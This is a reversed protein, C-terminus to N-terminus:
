KPKATADHAAKAQRYTTNRAESIESEQRKLLELAHERDRLQRYTEEYKVRWDALKQKATEFAASTISADTAVYLRYMRDQEAWVRKLDAVQVEVDLTYIEDQMRALEKPDADPLAADALRGYAESRRKKAEIFSEIEKIEDAKRDGILVAFTQESAPLYERQAQGRRWSLRQNWTDRKKDLAEAQKALATAGAEDGKQLAVAASTWTNAAQEMYATMLKVDDKAFESIDQAVGLMQALAEKEFNASDTYAKIQNAFKEPPNQAAAGRCIAAIFILLVLILSRCMRKM